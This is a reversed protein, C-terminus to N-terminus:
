PTMPPTCGCGESKLSAGLSPPSGPAPGEALGCSTSWNRVFVLRRWSGLIALASVGVSRPGDVDAWAAIHAATDRLPRWDLARTSLFFDQLRRSPRRVASPSRDPRAGLGTPHVDHHRRHPAAM